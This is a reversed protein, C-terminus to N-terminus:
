SIDPPTAEPARRTRRGTPMTGFRRLPAPVALEAMGSRVAREPGRVIRRLWGGDTPRNRIRGHSSNWQDGEDSKRRYARNRPSGLMRERYSPAYGTDPCRHEGPNPANPVNTRIRSAAPRVQTHHILNRLCSSSSGYRSAEAGASRPSRAGAHRAIGGPARGPQRRPTGRVRLRAAQRRRPHAPRVARVLGAYDPSATRGPRFAEFIHNGVM